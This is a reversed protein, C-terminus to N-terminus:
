TVGVDWSTPTRVAVESAATIIIPPQAPLLLEPSGPGVGEFWADAARELGGFASWTVEAVSLYRDLMKDGAIEFTRATRTM